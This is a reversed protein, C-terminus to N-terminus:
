LDELINFNIQNFLKLVEPLDIGGKILPFDKELPDNTFYGLTDLGVPYHLLKMQAAFLSIMSLSLGSLFANSLIPKINKNKLKYILGATNHFGGLMSPKLIIAKIYENDLPHDNYFNDSNEDIAIPIGTKLYFTKYEDMNRIPDEMYEIKDIGTKSVFLLAEDLNWNANADLRISIDDPLLSKLKLVRRIDEEVSKHGIKIKVSKYGKSIIRDVYEKSIIEDWIILKNVPIKLINGTQFFNLDKQAYFISLIAMEIGFNVSPYLDMSKFPRVAQDASATFGEDVETGILPNVARKIQDSSDEFTEDHFGPLPAIEGYGTRGKQSKIIVLIGQRFDIKHQKIWLPKKLGIKFKKLIIDSIIM